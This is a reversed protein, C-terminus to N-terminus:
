GAARHSTVIPFPEALCGHHGPEQRLRGKWGLSASQSGRALARDTKKRIQQGLFVGVSMQTM